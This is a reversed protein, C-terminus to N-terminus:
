RRFAARRACLRTWIQGGTAIDETVTVVIPVGTPGPPLPGGILRALQALWWGVRSFCAEEIEGVYVVTHGDALRKSFRRRIPPPM